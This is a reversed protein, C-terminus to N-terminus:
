VGPEDSTQCPLSLSSGLAERHEGLRAAPGRHLVVCFPALGATPCRPDQDLEAVVESHSM